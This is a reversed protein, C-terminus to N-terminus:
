EDWIMVVGFGDLVMVCVEVVGEIWVFGMFVYDIFVDGIEWEMCFDWDLYWEVFECVVLSFCDFMVILVEFVLFLLMWVDFFLLGVVFYLYLGIGWLVVDVGVNCVM